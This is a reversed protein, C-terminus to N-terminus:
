DYKSAAFVPSVELGSCVEIAYRRFRQVFVRKMGPVTIRAKRYAPCPKERDEDYRAHYHVVLKAKQGPEITVLQPPAKYLGAFGVGNAALGGPVPRGYKNLFQFHPYGELTCPSVSTNTLIFEIYRMPGMSIVVGLNRLSLQNDGCQAPASSTDQTLAQKEQAHPHPAFLTLLVFFAFIRGLGIRKSRVVEKM